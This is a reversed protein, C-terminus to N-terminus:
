AKKNKLRILRYVPLFVYLHHNRVALITYLLYKNKFLNECSTGEFHGGFLFEDFYINNRYM